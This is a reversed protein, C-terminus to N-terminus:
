TSPESLRATLATAAKQIDETTMPVQAKASRSLRELKDTLSRRSAERDAEPGHLASDAATAIAEYEQSVRLAEVQYEECKLAKHIALLVAAGGAMASALPLRFVTYGFDKAAFIAAATSLVAPVVVLFLNAWWLIGTLRLRHAEALVAARSRTHELWATANRVPTVTETAM